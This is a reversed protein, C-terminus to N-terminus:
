SCSCPMSVSALSIYSQWPRSHLAQFCFASVQPSCIVLSSVNKDHFGTTLHFAQVLIPIAMTLLIMRVRVPSILSLSSSLSPPWVMLFLLSTQRGSFMKHKVLVKSTTTERHDVVIQSFTQKTTSTNWFSWLRNMGGSVAKTWTVVIDRKTGFIFALQKVQLHRYLAM